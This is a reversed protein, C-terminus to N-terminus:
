KIQNNKYNNNVTKGDPDELLSLDDLQCITSFAETRRQLEKCLYLYGTWYSCLCPCTINCCVALMMFVLCNEKSSFYDSIGTVAACRM